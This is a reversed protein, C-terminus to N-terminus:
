LSREILECIAHIVTRHVEQVRPTSAAAVNIHVAAVMGIAGGDQGTLAITRLGQRNAAELAQLVNPSSGSTSIGLAVDGARGLAEIQRVFVREYGYDNCVSTVITSDATLAIAALAARERVFRGVLETAMHQADAASGGNGFTLLKGGAGLATRIAAAAEIIRPVVADRARQHVAVTEGFIAQVVAAEGAGAAQAM